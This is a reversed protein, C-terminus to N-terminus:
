GRMEEEDEILLELSIDLRDCSAGICDAADYSAGLMVCIGGGTLGRFADDTALKFLEKFSGFM